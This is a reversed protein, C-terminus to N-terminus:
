FIINTIKEEKAKKLTKSLYKKGLHNLLYKYDEIINENKLNINEELWNKYALEKFDSSQNKLIDIIKPAHNKFQYIIKPFDVNNYTYKGGASFLDRTSPSYFFYTSILYKTIRTYDSKGKEQSGITKLLDNPFLILMEAILEHIKNKELDKILTPLIEESETIYWQAKNTNEKLIKQVYSNKETETMIRIKDYDEKKEFISKKTNMNIFYRPKHTVKINETVTWYPAFAVKYNIEKKKKNITGFFLYIEKYDQSSVSEFVSGGNNIWSGDTRSKLEIGYKVNNILIDIDPFHHGYNERISINEINIEKTLDSFLKEFGNYSSTSKIYKEEIETSEIKEKLLLLFENISYSM